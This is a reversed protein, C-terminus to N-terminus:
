AATASRQTWRAVKGILEATGIPKAIHDNMGAALCASVDSPASNASVAVIPTNRNTGSEARIARTAELGGMIPMQLDMLILDFRTSKTLSLAEAGDEAEAVEIELVSLVTKILERNLAVDDVILVRSVGAPAPADPAAALPAEAKEPTEEGEATQRVVPALVEFAFTSGQGEVSQVWITGGMLEVLAKCISLGLGTGGHRRSVSSDAQTFREFLHEIRGEPIGTGTDTVSVSLVGGRRRAYGARVVIEGSGTFKIANSLLNLVIQRLRQGDLNVRPPLRGDVELRLRLRLAKAQAQAGVVEIAEQLLAEPDVSQPDLIVQGADMKAYDLIDSVLGLLARSSTSIRQVFTRATEPLDEVSDLLASFGIIGTLPTRLEHSINALFEAKAVAAAEAEAHKRRLEAEMVKRATIDRMCDQLELVRGTVADRVVSPGAEIWITEGSKTIARYEFPDLPGTAGARIAATLHETVWAGEDPNILRFAKTGILEEPEYGLVRKVSPSIYTLVGDPGCRSIVDSANEALLRFQAESAALELEARVRDDVNRLASIVAPPEGEVNVIVAGSGEMWVWRGDAHRLRIVLPQQAYGQTVAARQLAARSRDDPHIVGGVPQGILDDPSYGLQRISPSVFEITEDLRFRVIIDTSRDALMRYRAESESIADAAAKRDDILRLVTVAGVPRDADGWVTATNGELWSVGGDKKLIRCELLAPPADRGAKLRRAQVARLLDLDDPHIFAGVSRGTMEEPAYGLQRCSPSAYRIRQQADFQIIIDTVNDAILRYRAESAVIAEFAAEVADAAASKAVMARAVEDRLATADMRQSIWFYAIPGGVLLSVLLTNVPSYAQLSGHQVVGILLDALVAAAMVVVATAGTLYLKSAIGRLSGADSPKTRTPDFARAIGGRATAVGGATGDAARPPSEPGPGRDAEDM